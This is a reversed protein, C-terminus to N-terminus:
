AAERILRALKANQEQIKFDEPCIKPLIFVLSRVNDRQIKEINLDKLNIVGDKTMLSSIETARGMLRDLGEYYDLIGSLTIAVIEPLPYKIYSYNVDPEHIYSTFVNPKAGITYYQPSRSWPAFIAVAARDGGANRLEGPGIGRER